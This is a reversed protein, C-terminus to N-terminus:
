GHRLVFDLVYHLYLVSSIWEFSWRVMFYWYWSPSEFHRFAYSVDVRKVNSDLGMILLSVARRFGLFEDFGEKIVLFAFWYGYINHAYRIAEVYFVTFYPYRVPGVEFVPLLFDM